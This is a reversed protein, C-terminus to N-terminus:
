EAAGRAEVELAREMEDQRSRAWAWYAICIVAGAAVSLRLGFLSRRALGPDARQLAPGGRFLMGYLAMVRGRMAPDVASQVLTQASIGTTILSFGCVFVCVLAVWYNATATFGLM